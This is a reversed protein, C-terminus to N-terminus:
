GPERGFKLRLVAVDDLDITKKEAEEAAGDTLTLSSPTIRSARGYFEAGDKLTVGVELNLRGCKTYLQFVSRIQVGTCRYWGPREPDETCLGRLLVKEDKFDDDYNEPSAAIDSMYEFLEKNDIFRLIRDSPFEGKELFRKWIQVILNDIYAHNERHEWSRWLARLLLVAQTLNMKLELGYKTSVCDVGQGEREMDALDGDVTRKSVWLKDAYYVSRSVTGFEDDFSAREFFKNMMDSSMFERRSRADEIDVGVPPFKCLKIIRRDGTVSAVVKALRRLLGVTKMKNRTEARVLNGFRRAFVDIDCPFDIPPESTSEGRGIAGEFKEVLNLRDDIDDSSEAVNVFAAKIKKWQEISISDSLAQTM